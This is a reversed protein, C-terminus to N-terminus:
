DRTLSSPDQMRHPSALILYILLFYFNFFYTFICLTGAKWVIWGDDDADDDDLFFRKFSIITM